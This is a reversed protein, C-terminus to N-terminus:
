CATGPKYLKTPVGENTAATAALTRALRWRGRGTEVEVVAVVDGATTVIKATEEPSQPMPLRALVGQQGRRLVTAVGPSVVLERLGALATRIPLVPLTAEPWDELDGLSHAERVDFPGFRTRRLAGLHGGCGLARGIGAALVRVYTGKSCEVHFDLEAPGATTLSLAHVQIRRPEREVEIGRRALQYLPVGARKVASYMPPTQWGAGSFQACIDELIGPDLSPPPAEAMVKGTCDLSDTEVGLRIRGTYTKDEASLFQAVKTAEGICLPLLGTAFPDLTGLHGIKQGGVRRKLVRVVGASTIGEPKDVLLVGDMPM